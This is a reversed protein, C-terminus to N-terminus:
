IHLLSMFQRKTVTAVFRATKTTSILSWQTWLYKLLFVNQLELLVEWQNTRRPVFTREVRSM